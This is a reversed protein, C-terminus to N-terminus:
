NAEGHGHHKTTFLNKIWEVDRKIGAVDERLGALPMTAHHAEIANVRSHLNNWVLGGLGVAVSALAYFMEIPLTTPM